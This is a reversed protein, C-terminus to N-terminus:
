CLKPPAFTPASPTEASASAAPPRSPTPTPTSGHRCPAVTHSGCNASSRRLGPLPANPAWCTTWPSPRTATVPNPPACASTVALALHVEARSRVDALDLGLAQEARVIHATVTNRSLGLLKAVASRPMSMLLRTIDATAKPLHDLPRLLDRAWALAPGRPLVGELPTRGHHFAVRAPVTLAAALAHAAESYAAATEGLPHPGSIGLAYRPNDRVLRRLSEGRGGPGDADEAILCILHQKIVPCEVMLDRGHYGSPDQFGRSIRDRDTTPCHLLFIRLRDAELLPPVVGTTMRRALTPEGALLASLVAFRLQRAKHQYGHRAQDAGQARRMLAIVSGTRSVLAVTEPGPASRCATVLVPRPDDAGLAECHVYLPGAQTTAAAMEGGSLRALLPALPRLIRRPFEATASEVTAAAEGVLAADMGTRRRLWDLVEQVDPEDPSHVQRRVERLLGELGEARTDEM